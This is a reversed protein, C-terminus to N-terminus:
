HFHRKALDAYQHQALKKIYELEKEACSLSTAHEPQHTHQGRSEVPCLQTSRVVHVTLVQRREKENNNQAEVM